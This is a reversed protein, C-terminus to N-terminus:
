PLAVVHVRVSDGEHLDHRRRIVAKLPLMWSGDRYRFLATQWEQGAITATVPVSRFGRPRTEFAQTVSQAHEQAVAVQMWTDQRERWVTLVDHIDFEFQPKTGASAM